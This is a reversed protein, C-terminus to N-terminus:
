TPAHCPHRDKPTSHADHVHPPTHCAPSTPSAAAPATRSCAHPGACTSALPRHAATRRPQPHRALAACARRGLDTPQWLRAPKGRRTPRLHSAPAVRGADRLDGRRRRAVNVLDEDVIFALDDDTYPTEHPPPAAM